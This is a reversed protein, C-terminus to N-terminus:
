FTVNISFNLATAKQMKFPLSHSFTELSFSMTKYFLFKKSWLYYENPIFAFIQHPLNKIVRAHNLSDRSIGVMIFYGTQWDKSLQM